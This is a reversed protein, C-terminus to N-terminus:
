SNYAWYAGLGFGGGFLGIALWAGATLGLFVVAGGSVEEIENDTLVRLSSKNAAQGDNLLNKNKVDVMNIVM